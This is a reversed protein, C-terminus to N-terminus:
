FVLRKHQLKCSQTSLEFLFTGLFFCGRGGLARFSGFDGELEVGGVDTDTELEGGEIEAQVQEICTYPVWTLVLTPQFPWRRVLLEM